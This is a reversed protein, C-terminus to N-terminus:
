KSVKVKAPRLLRGSITYGKEIEELIIGSEKDKEEVTQVAEHIAPDFRKGLSDIAEVGHSKLFDEMQTKVQMLGKVNPDQLLEQPMKAATLNFNDMLPLLSELFMVKAFGILEQMREFEEKKHNILDAKARKWGNLYEECKKKCDELEDPKKEEQPENM